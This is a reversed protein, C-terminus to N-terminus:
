QAFYINAWDSTAISGLPNLKWNQLKPNVSYAYSSQYTTIWGVDNVIKQEADQYIKIRTTPDLDADAQALETQVAQQEPAASSSNQGYNFANHLANKGFFLTLWDQPDPYDAGWVGYWLQLKKSGFNTGEDEILQDSQESVAKVTIGLVQKWEAVIALITNAGAQYSVDYNITLSPFQSVSSYGEEQLGQKFLAQAKTQNGSTGTTGDPGTLNANYGPIGNPVIHNSPTVVPGIVRGIILDKNIALELAQRININDLPKV